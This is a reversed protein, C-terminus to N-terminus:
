LTPVASDGSLKDSSRVIGWKQDFIDNFQCIYAQTERNDFTRVIDDIILRIGSSEHVDVKSMMEEMGENDSKRGYLSIVTKIIDPSKKISKVTGSFIHTILRIDSGKFTRNFIKRCRRCARYTQRMSVRDGNVPLPIRGDLLLREVTYGYLMSKGMVMATERILLFLILWKLIKIILKYILIFPLFPLLLLYIVSKALCGRKKKYLPALDNANCKIEHLTIISAIMNKYVRVLLFRGLFPVPIFQCLGASFAAWAFILRSDPSIDLGNNEKQSNNTETTNM